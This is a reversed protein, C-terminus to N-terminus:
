NNPHYIHSLVVIPFMLSLCTTNNKLKSERIPQFLLVRWPRVGGINEFYECTLSLLLLSKRNNSSISEEGCSLSILSESLVLHVLMAGVYVRFAWLCYSDLLGFSSYCCALLLFTRGCLLFFSLSGSNCFNM